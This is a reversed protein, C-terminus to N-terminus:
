FIQQLFYTGKLKSVDALEGPLVTISNSSLDLMKLAPLVSIEFPIAKLKNGNLKVESLHVLEAHCIDPFEELNNNALDLVSLKINQALSPFQELKNSSLNLTTLQVLNCLRDTMEALENRSLDLMKLKCLEGIKPTIKKLKNSHLLLSQLNVLKAIEDPVDELNTESIRLLNLASLNFLAPDLGDRSIRQSVNPGSLILEHRNETAATSIEPWM